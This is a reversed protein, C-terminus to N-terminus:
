NGNDVYEVYVAAHHPLDELFVVVETKRFFSEEDFAKKTAEKCGSPCHVIYRM